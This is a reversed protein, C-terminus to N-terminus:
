GIGIRANSLNLPMEETEDTYRRIFDQLLLESDAFDTADNKYSQRHCRALTEQLDCQYWVWKKMCESKLLPEREEIIEDARM